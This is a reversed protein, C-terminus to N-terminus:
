NGRLADGSFGKSFPHGGQELARVGEAADAIANKQPCFYERSLMAQWPQLSRQVPRWESARGGWTGDPRGFAYTRYELSACKIGEFLVNEVDRSRAVVVYRVVGDPTVALTARDIYVRFATNARVPLEILSAGRPFAPPAPVPDSAKELRAENDREWTSKGTSGCGSLAAASAVAM